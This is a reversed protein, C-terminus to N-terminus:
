GDRTGDRVMIRAHRELRTRKRTNPQPPESGEASLGADAGSGAPSAGLSGAASGAVGPAALLPSSPPQSPSASAFFAEPSPVPLVAGGSVFPSSFRVLSTM